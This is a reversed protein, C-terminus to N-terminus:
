FFMAEALAAESSLLSIATSLETSSGGIRASLQARGKALDGQFRVNQTNAYNFVVDILDAPVADDAQVKTRLSTAAGLSADEGFPRAGTKHGAARRASGHRVVV